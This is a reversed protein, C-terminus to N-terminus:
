VKRSRFPRLCAWKDTQPRDGSRDEEEKTKQFMRALRTGSKSRVGFKRGDILPSRAKTIHLGLEGSLVLRVTTCPYERSRNLYVDQARDDVEGHTIEIVAGMRLDVDM